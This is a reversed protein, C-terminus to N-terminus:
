ARTDALAEYYRLVSHLMSYQEDYEKTFPSMRTAMSWMVSSSNMEVQQAAARVDAEHEAMMKTMGGGVKLLFPNPQVTFGDSGCGQVCVPDLVMTPRHGAGEHEPGAASPHGPSRSQDIPSYLIVSSSSKALHRGCWNVFGEGCFRPSGFAM